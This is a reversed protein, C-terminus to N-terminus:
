ELPEAFAGARPSRAAFSGLDLRPCDIPPTGHTVLLASGGKALHAELADALQGQGEADLAATPEDLLWIPRGSVVLRALACRRRQGASLAAGPRDALATLGYAVLAEPVRATGNVRAWFSLTEAVTLTAKLGDAHAAYAVTEPDHRLTGALPPCLGALTRLLTTKGLGNAGHLSLATGAPVDFTVGSLLPQGARGIGLGTVSLATASLGAAARGGASM